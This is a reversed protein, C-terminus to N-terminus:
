KKLLEKITLLISTIVLIFAFLGAAWKGIRKFTRYTDVLDRLDEEYQTELKQEESM